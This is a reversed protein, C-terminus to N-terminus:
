GQGKLEDVINRLEAAYEKLADHSTSTEALREQFRAPPLKTRGGRLNRIEDYITRATMRLKDAEVDVLLAPPSQDGEIEAGPIDGESDLGAADAVDGHGLPQGFEAIGADNLWKEYAARCKALGGDRIYIAKVKPDSGQGTVTIAVTDDGKPVWISPSAYVSVGIGFKVAARKMSDSVLGKSRADDQTGKGMAGFDTRPVGGVTLVCWMGTQTPDYEDQWDSGVVHNLREIVLRVDIYPVCLAASRERNASQGKFKIAEPPFPRRFEKLHDDTLTREPM